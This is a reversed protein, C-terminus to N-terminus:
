SGLGFGAAMRKDLKFEAMLASASCELFGDRPTAIRLLRELFEPTTVYEKFLGVEPGTAVISRPALPHAAIRVAGEETVQFAFKRPEAAIARATYDRCWDGDPTRHTIGYEAASSKFVPVYQFRLDFRKM